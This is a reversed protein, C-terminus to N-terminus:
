EKRARRAQIFSNLCFGFYILSLIAMASRSITALPREVEGGGLLTFLGPIGTVTGAIAAVSLLSAVHMIHKRMSETRAFSALVFFVFGFFAPILATTSARDSLVYGGVGLVILAIAYIFTIKIM